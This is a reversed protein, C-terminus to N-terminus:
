LRGSQRHRLRAGADGDHLSTFSGQDRTRATRRPLPNSLVQEAVDNTSFSLLALPGGGCYLPLRGGESVGSVRVPYDGDFRQVCLATGDDLVHLLVSDGTEKALKELDERCADRLSTAGLHLRAFSILEPGVSYRGSAEDQVLFGESVWTALFRHCATKSLDLREVVDSLTLSRGPERFLRLIGVARRVSLSEGKDM